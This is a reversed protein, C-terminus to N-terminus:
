GMKLVIILWFAAGFILGTASAGLMGLWINEPKPARTKQREVALLLDGTIDM